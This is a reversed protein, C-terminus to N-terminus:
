GINVSCLYHKMQKLQYATSADFIKGGSIIKIGGIISNDIQYEVICKEKFLKHALLTNIKDKQEPLLEVASIITVVRSNKYKAFIIEFIKNIRHLINIQRNRGIVRMFNAFVPCCSLNDAIISLTKDIDSARASTCTLFQKIKKHKTLLACFKKFSESVEHLCGVRKAEYFLASAYRGPVSIALVKINSVDM